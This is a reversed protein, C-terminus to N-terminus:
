LVFFWNGSRLVIGSSGFAWNLLALTISGQIPMSGELRVRGENSPDMMNFISRLSAVFSDPLGGTVVKSSRSHEASSQKASPLNVTSSTILPAFLDKKAAWPDKEKLPSVVDQTRVEPKSQVSASSCRTSSVYQRALHKPYFSPVGNM